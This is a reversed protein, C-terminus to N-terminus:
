IIKLTKLDKVIKMAHLRAAEEADEYDEHNKMMDKMAKKADGRGEVPTSYQQIINAQREEGQAIQVPRTSVKKNLTEVGHCIQAGHGSSTSILATLCSSPRPLAALQLIPSSGNQGKM